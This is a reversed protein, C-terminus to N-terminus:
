TGPDVVTFGQREFAPRAAASLLYDFFARAYPNTSATTMAVPYLIPPHSDDPFVAVVKVAPEAAADTAYVIGLPAEGRAVYALATRVNDAQVIRGAVQDWAGLSELAAKGYKGAPVSDTNAMALRGHPGLLAAINVGAALDVSASSDRPAVLVIRNGLLTHRTDSRILGRKEVYDMWDMDASFFIDAPASQEIQKALTSTAAYSVLVTKGTEQRYRGVTDDLANKLSAAAFVIVDDAFAPAPASLGAVVAAIPLCLLLRRSIPAHM